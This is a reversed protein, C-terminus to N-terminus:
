RRPSVEHSQSAPWRKLVIHSNRTDGSASYLCNSSWGVARKVAVHKQIDEPQITSLAPQGGHVLEPIDTHGSM